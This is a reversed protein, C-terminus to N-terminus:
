FAEAGPRLVARVTRWLIVIDGTLSWNDVYSLDLRIADEWALTSRGSVQWLGSVGPKVIHRRSAFEDYLAVEAERQPRPGVLSMDGSLVNFFQPLEDLSYRRIFRGVPTVRPDNRVKFLPSEDGGQARLLTALQADSGASMSRFKLMSFLAGGRGVREQRYFVGGPSSIAVAIAVALMVPASAVILALAGFIDVGRKVVARFGVLEPFDVQLLPLDAVPRSHVRPGAIGALGPAVILEGGRQALLWGLRRMREHGLLGVATVIVAQPRLRELVDDLEDLAGIRDADAGDPLEEDSLVGVVRYGSGPSRRIGAVTDASTRDGVVLVPALCSGAAQRSRLWQRWMWRSVVLLTAGVAFSTLLYARGLEVGGVYSLIAIAGFLVVSAETVRRYETSGSGVVRPDRSGFVGLAALWIAALGVSVVGYPVPTPQGGVLVVVSLPPALLLSAAAVTLLVIVADTWALRRAYGRRWLGEQGGSVTERAPTTLLTM